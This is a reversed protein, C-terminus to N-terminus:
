PKLEAAHYAKMFSEPEFSENEKELAKCLYQAIDDQTFEGTANYGERRLNEVDLSTCFEALWQYHRRTFISM